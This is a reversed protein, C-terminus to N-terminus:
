PQTRSQRSLLQNGYSAGYGLGTTGALVAKGNKFAEMDSKKVLYGTVRVVDADSSYYSIYRTGISFAGKIIDLVYQPNKGVTEDFPYIDGTGTYVLKHLRATIQLHEPLPVEEHVSIRTGPSINEDSSLGVQAHLYIPNCTPKFAKLCADMQEMIAEGYATAAENHGFRDQQETYGNVLNICESLGVFGLMGAFKEQDILGENVLFNDQFFACTNVTFHIRKDILECMATVAQPLITDLFHSPSQAKAALLKLNLRCLTLGGGGIPFINYCSSVSYDSGWEQSYMADNVFSPKSCILGTEIAKLAFDDSTHQNYILSMNPVPRQMQASLALLIRGAKTDYPGINCHCFSDAITRDVHVLLAKIAQYATQEDAQEVFPNLLRDLHGIYVPFGTVSPIHHYLVMLHTVAEWIDKPPELMLFQSGQQFFKDFDVICYRPCHPMKAEYMDTVIDEAMLAKTQASLTLPDYLSESVKALELNRQNASLTPNQMISLIRDYAM